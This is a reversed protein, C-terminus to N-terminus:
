SKSSIKIQAEVEAAFDTDKKEVGEGLELRAFHTIKLGPVGIKKGAEAIYQSVSKSDEKVFAQEILCAEKYWTEIRSSVIKPLINEPKGQNRYQNTFIEEEAKLEAASISERNLFLPKMAAVQLAVDKSVAVLEPNEVAANINEGAFAVLVGVKGGAHVYSQVFVDPGGSTEFRRVAINEGITAVLNAADEKVTQGSPLRASLVEEHTKPRQKELTQVIDAVYKQFSENRTVFDTECNVEVLFGYNRDPTLAAAVVGESAARGSKKAAAALGKERLLTVAREFDAGAEDLAKKCDSMGAGTQDRLQKVLQPTVTAM